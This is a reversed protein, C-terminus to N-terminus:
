PNPYCIVVIPRGRLQTLALIREARSDKQKGGIRLLKILEEPQIPSGRKKVTIKGIDRQRLAARLQKLNFPM